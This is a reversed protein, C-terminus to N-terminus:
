GGITGILCEDLSYKKVSTVPTIQDMQASTDKRPNLLLFPSWAITNTRRPDFHSDLRVKIAKSKIVKICWFRVRMSDLFYYMLSSFYICTDLKSWCLGDFPRFRYSEDLQFPGVSHVKRSAWLMSICQQKCTDHASDPRIWSSPRSPGNFCRYLNHIRM